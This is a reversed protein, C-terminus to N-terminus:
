LSGQPVRSGDRHVRPGGLRQVSRRQHQLQGRGADPAFAAGSGARASCVCHGRREAHRQRHHQASLLGIRAGRRNRCVITGNPGAIADIANNYRPTLSIDHVYLDTDNTGNQYYGNYQWETGGLDFKGDVGAVLRVQKRNPHVNIFKPFVANTVGFQFSTIANAM